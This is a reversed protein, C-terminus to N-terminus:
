SASKASSSAVTPASRRQGRIMRAGFPVSCVAATAAWSLVITCGFVIVAKFIAPLDVGLLLYQMWLVFVYHFLYIGYANESVADLLPRRATTFRLFIASAAFCTSAAYLALGIGSVISLGPLAHGKVVMATASIWVLFSVVAAGLWAGWHRALTGDPGLLGRELGGAGVVLGGLFYIAYQPAFAPQIAFPGYEVWHWPEALDTFAFYALLSVIVLVAFCRIPDTKAVLRTVREVARPALWYLAAAGVNLLFLCYLFWLPGSPWFPLAIWHSWFASWSPDVATVRYVPYYAVPMLLAVGLAFPLGLRVFRDYLFAHWNKRQLSPWVFLGSLFFMLQMMYLFQSACFLDLGLWRDADVIPNVTWGFPPKDFPLAAAPQSSLYAISSHFAVVVLVAYARLNSLALSTRNM